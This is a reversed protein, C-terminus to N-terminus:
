PRTIFKKSHGNPTTQSTLEAIVVYREPARGIYNFPYCTTLTLTGRPRPMLSTKDKAGVIRIKKVVYEFEGADTSVFLKDHVKVDKLERFVTDRHGSLVSNNNEGPLASKTYHGVGKKLVSKSTGQYIPFSRKLKPITLNGISEGISPIDAYLEVNKKPYQAKTLKTTQRTVKSAEITTTATYGVLYSYLNWSFFIVGCGILIISLKRM